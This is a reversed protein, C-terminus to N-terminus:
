ARPTGLDLNEALATMLDRGGTFDELRDEPRASLQGSEVLRFVIRGIDESTRVGWESFVVGALAGFERRGLRVVGEILERGSLHRREPDNLREAPLAQVTWGLAAVVFGYAERTYSPDADRIHDVADWFAIDSTSM